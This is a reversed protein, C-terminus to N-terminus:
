APAGTVVALLPSPRNAAPDASSYGMGRALPMIVPVSSAASLLVPSAPPGSPRVSLWHAFVETEPALDGTEVV